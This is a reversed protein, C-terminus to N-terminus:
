KIFLCFIGKSVLLTSLCFIGTRCKPIINSQFSQSFNDCFSISLFNSKITAGYILNLPFFPSCAVINILSGLSLAKSNLLKLFKLEIKELYNIKIM